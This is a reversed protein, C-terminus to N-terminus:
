YTHSGCLEVGVLYKQQLLEQSERFGLVLSGLEEGRNETLMITAFDAHDLRAMAVNIIRLM